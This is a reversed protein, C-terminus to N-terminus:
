ADKWHLKQSISGCCDCSDQLSQLYNTGTEKNWIFLYFCSLCYLSPWFMMYKVILPRAVVTFQGARRKLVTLFTRRAFWQMRNKSVTKLTEDHNTQLKLKLCIFHFLPLPPPCKGSTVVSQSALCLLLELESSADIFIYRGSLRFTSNTGREKSNSSM